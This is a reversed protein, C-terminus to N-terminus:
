QVLSLLCRKLGVVRLLNERITKEQHEKIVEWFLNIDNDKLAKFDGVWNLYVVLKIKVSCSGAVPYSPRIQVKDGRYTLLDMDLLGM